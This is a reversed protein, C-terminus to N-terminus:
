DAKLYLDGITRRNTWYQGRFQEVDDIVFRCTGIQIPNEESFESLPLTEYTYYLLYCGNQEIIESTISKSFVEDTKIKIMVSLLTQEIFIEIRKECATGKYKYKLLGSYKKKLKPTKVFPNFRWLKKEYIFIFFAVYGVTEPILELHEILSSPSRLFFLCVYIPFSLYVSIKILKKINSTM